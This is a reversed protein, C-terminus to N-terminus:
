VASHRLHLNQRLPLVFRQPATRAVCPWPRMGSLVLRNLHLPWCNSWKIPQLVNECYVTTLLYETTAIVSLAGNSLAHKSPQPSVVPANGKGRSKVHM